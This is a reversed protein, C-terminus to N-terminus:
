GHKMGGYVIRAIERGRSEPGASESVDVQGADLSEM